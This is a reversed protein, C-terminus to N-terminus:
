GASGSLGPRTDPAGADEAGGGRGDRDMLLVAGARQVVRELEDRAAQEAGAAQEAREQAQAVAADTDATIRTITATTEARIAEVQALAEEAAADAQARQEDAAEARRRQERADREAAAQLSQAEAIRVATERQVQDVEYAAAEPDAVTRAVEAARELIAQQEGLARQTQAATETFRALLAGFTVRGDSVPRASVEVVGEV